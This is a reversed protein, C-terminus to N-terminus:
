LMLKRADPFPIPTGVAGIRIIVTQCCCFIPHVTIACATLGWYGQFIETKFKTNGRGRSVYFIGALPSLPVDRLESPQAPRPANSQQSSRFDAVM